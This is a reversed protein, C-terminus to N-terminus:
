QITAAQKMPSTAIARLYAQAAAELIDTAVGQGTSVHGDLEVIVSVEGLADRGGTVADIHFERLKVNKGTAANIAHFIADIPGDGSFSGTVERGEPTKIGVRAFPPRNSSAEVEFWSLSYGAVEERMEDTVLAEIDLATVQKKKDALEKFRKFAHNLETGDIEYGLEALSRRLAHRGSHKGLVISNTTLGVSKADM